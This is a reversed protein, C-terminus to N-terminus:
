FRKLVHLQLPIFYELATSKKEYYKMMPPAVEPLKMFPSAQAPRFPFLEMQLSDAHGPFWTTTIPTSPSFLLSNLKSFILQNNASIQNLLVNGTIKLQRQCMASNVDISTNQALLPNETFDIAGLRNHLPAKILGM